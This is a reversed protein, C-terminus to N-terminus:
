HNHYLLKSFLHLLKEEESQWTANHHEMKNKKFINMQNFLDAHDFGQFSIPIGGHNSEIFKSWHNDVQYISPLGSSLYDFVKTPMCHENSPNTLYTVLGFRSDQIAKQIQEFPIPEVSISLTLNPHQNQQLQKSVEANSCHGIICMTMNPNSQLLSKWIDLAQFIGNSETITGSFILDYKKDDHHPPTSNILSKNEIITFKKKIFNLESTYTNEALIFHDFFVSCLQEKSRVLFALIRNIPFPYINQFRLNYAYNEQIDYIIKSGFIIQNMITVILLEPSNVIIVKPQLKLLTIFTRFPNLLRQISLRHFPKSTHFTISDSNELATKSPYGILHLEINQVKLLSKGIKHFSRIDDVPKLTSIIAIKEKPM